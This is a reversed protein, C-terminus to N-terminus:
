ESIQLNESSRREIRCIAAAIVASHADGLLGFEGILTVRSPVRNAGWDRTIRRSGQNPSVIFPSDRGRAYDCVQVVFSCM